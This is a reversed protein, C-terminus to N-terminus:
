TSIRQFTTKSIAASRQAGRGLARLAQDALASIFAPSDNLGAMTEFHRIGWRRAARRAEIDIEGLTEIHDSVFAIPIALVAQEGRRGLSELTPLLAPGLWRDPGIKSQYCLTHPLGFGGTEVVLRVTEEIQRQYPDGNEILKVPLGHASFVLHPQSDVPFRELAQRIRGAVSDIYLPADFYADVAVTPLDLAAGAACRRWEHFSSGTTAACRQPYLPLLVLRECQTKRIAEVADASSPKWYRMAVFVRADISRRLEKELASAQRETYEGIPSKGGIEVYGKRIKSARFKAAARALLPRVMGALPFDFIDPDNFLNRLFPEVADLSDPGGLQLLVVGIREGSNGRGAM